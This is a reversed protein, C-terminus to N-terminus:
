WMGRSRVFYPRCDADETKEENKKRKQQDEETSHRYAFFRQQQSSRLPEVEGQRLREREIHGEADRERM